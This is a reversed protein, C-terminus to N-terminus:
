RPDNSRLLRDCLATFGTRTKDIAGNHKMSLLVQLFHQGISELQKSDLMIHGDCMNDTQM